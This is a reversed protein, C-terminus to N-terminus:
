QYFSTSFRVADIASIYVFYAYFTGEFQDVRHKVITLGTMIYVPLSFLTVFYMFMVISCKTASECFTMEAFM